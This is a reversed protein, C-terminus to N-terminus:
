ARKMRAAMVVKPDFEERYKVIRDDRIRALVLGPLVIRGEFGRGKGTMSMEYEVAVM